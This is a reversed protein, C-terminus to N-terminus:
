MKEEKELFLTTVAVRPAFGEKVPAASFKEVVIHLTASRSVSAKGAGKTVLVKGLPEACHFVFDARGAEGLPTDKSWMWERFAQKQAKNVESHDTELYKLAHDISTKSFFTSATAKSEKRCRWMLDENSLGIHCVAIHSWNIVLDWKKVPKNAKNRVPRGPITQIYGM